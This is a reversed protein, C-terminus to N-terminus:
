GHLEVDILAGDKKRRQATAHVVGGGHIAFTMRSAEELDHQAIISDIDKGQLENQSYDFMREFAPNCFVVRNQEDKTVIGLPSNAILADLYMTRELLQQEARKIATIDFATALIAPKREFNTRAGTFDLWRLEGAKTRFRFQYRPEPNEGRLRANYR